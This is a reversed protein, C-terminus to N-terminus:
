FLLLGLILIYLFLLPLPFLPPGPGGRPDTFRCAFHEADCLVPMIRNFFLKKKITKRKPGRSQMVYRPRMPSPVRTEWLQPDGGGLEGSAMALGRM